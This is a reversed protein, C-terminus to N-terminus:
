EFVPYMKISFSMLEAFDKYTYTFYYPMLEDSMTNINCDVGENSNHFSIQNESFAFFLGWGEGNDPQGFYENRGCMDIPKVEKGLLVSSVFTSAKEILENCATVFKEDEEEDWDWEEDFYLNFANLNDNEFNVNNKAYEAIKSLMLKKAEDFNERLFTEVTNPAQPWGEHWWDKGEVMEAVVVYKM